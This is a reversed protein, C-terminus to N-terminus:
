SNSAVPACAAEIIKFLRDHCSRLTYLELYRRRAATSMERLATEDGLMEDLAGAIQQPTCEKDLLRGTVRDPATSSITAHQTSLV